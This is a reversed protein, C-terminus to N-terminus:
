VIVRFARTAQSRWAQGTGAKTKAAIREGVVVGIGDEGDANVFRAWDGAQALAVPIEQFMSAAVDGMDRWGNEIMLRKASTESDYLGRLHAIPDNGTLAQACEAAFTLCDASGWAFPVNRQARFLELIKSRTTM